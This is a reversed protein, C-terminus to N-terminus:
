IALGSCRMALAFLVFTEVLMAGTLLGIGEPYCECLRDVTTGDEKRRKGSDARRERARASTPTRVGQGM